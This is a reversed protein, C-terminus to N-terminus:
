PNNEKGQHEEVEKLLRHRIQKFLLVATDAAIEAREEPTQVDLGQSSYRNIHSTGLLPAVGAALTAAVVDLHEKNQSM